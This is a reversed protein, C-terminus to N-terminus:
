GIGWWGGPTVPECCMWMPSATGGAVLGNLLTMVKRGSRAAGPRDGLRIVDNAVEEIGLREALIATLALGANAVGHDDDFRVELRAPDYSQSRM